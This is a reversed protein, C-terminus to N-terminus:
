RKGIRVSLREIANLLTYYQQDQRIRENQKWESFAEKEVYFRLASDREDKETQIAATVEQHVKDLIRDRLGFAATTAALTGSIASVFLSAALTAPLSFRSKETILEPM